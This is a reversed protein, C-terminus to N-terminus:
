ARLQLFVSLAISDRPGTVTGGQRLKSSLLGIGTAATWAAIFDEAHRYERATLSRSLRYSDLIEEVRFRDVHGDADLAWTLCIQGLDYLLYSTMCDAGDAYLGTM